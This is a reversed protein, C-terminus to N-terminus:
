ARVAHQAKCAPAMRRRLGLLRNPRGQFGAEFHVDIEDEAHGAFLFRVAPGGLAIGGEQCRARPSNLAAPL